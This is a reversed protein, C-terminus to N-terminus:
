VKFFVAQFLNLDTSLATNKRFSNLAGTTRLAENSPHHVQVASSPPDPNKIVTATGTVSVLILNFHSIVRIGFFIINCNSFLSCFSSTTRKNGSNRIGQVPTNSVPSVGNQVIDSICSIRVVTTDLNSNPLFVITGLNVIVPSCIRIKLIGSIGQFTSASSILPSSTPDDFYIKGFLNM